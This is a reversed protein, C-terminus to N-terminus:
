KVAGFTLGRVLQKQSLWGVVLIGIAGAIKPLYGGLTAQLSTLFGSADM